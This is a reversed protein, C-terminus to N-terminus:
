QLVKFSSGKAVVCYDVAGTKDIFGWFFKKRVTALGEYFNKADEYKCPIVEKGSKNIFGWRGRKQVAAWGESFSNLGDAYRFSIGTPIDNTKTNKVKHVAIGKKDIFFWKGDWSSRVLAFGESFDRAVDYIPPIVENGTKDIFGWKGNRAFAAFGEHFNRVSEYISHIIEQGNKDIFGWRGDCVAALGESFDRFYSYGGISRGTRDILSYGGHIYTEETDCTRHGDEWRFDVCRYETHGPL